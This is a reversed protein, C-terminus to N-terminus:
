PYGRGMAPRDLTGVRLLEDRALEDPRDVEVRDEVVDELVGREPEVADLGTDDFAPAGLGAPEDFVEPAPDVRDLVPPVDRDVDERVFDERGRRVPGPGM